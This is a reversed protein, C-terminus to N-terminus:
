LTEPTYKLKVRYKVPKRSNCVLYPIATITSWLVTLVLIKLRNNM